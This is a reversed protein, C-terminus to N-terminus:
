SAARFAQLRLTDWWTAALGRGDFLAEQLLSIQTPFPMAIGAEVQGQEIKLAGDYRRAIRQMRANDLLCLMILSKLGRNRAIVILQGLLDTGVGQGQASAEVTVAVEARWAVRPDEFRLEAAGRLAGDDFCGIIITKLWDVRTCYDAIARDTVSAWFRSQRDDPSLRLLHARFEPLDTPLLKRYVRM